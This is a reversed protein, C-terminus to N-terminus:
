EPRTLAHTDSRPRPPAGHHIHHPGGVRGHRLEPLTDRHGSHHAPVRAVLPPPAGMPGPTSPRQLRPRPKRRLPTVSRDSGDAPHAGPRDCHDRADRALAPRQKSAHNQPVAPPEVARLDVAVELRAAQRVQDRHAAPM